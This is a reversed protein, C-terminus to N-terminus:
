LLLCNNDSLNWNLLVGSVLKKVDKKSKGTVYM